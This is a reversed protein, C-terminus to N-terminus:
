LYLLGICLERGSPWRANQGIGRRSGDSEKVPSFEVTRNMGMPSDLRELKLQFITEYFLKAREMEQVYIEFWGVPNHNM